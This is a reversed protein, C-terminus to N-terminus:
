YGAREVRDGRAVTVQGLAQRHVRLIFNAPKRIGEVAEDCRQIARDSIDPLAHHGDRIRCALDRLAIVIQGGARLILRRAHLFGGGGGFLERGGHGGVRVGRAARARQCGRYGRVYRRLPSIIVLATDVMSVIVCLAPWIDLMMSAM